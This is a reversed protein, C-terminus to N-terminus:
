RLERGLVVYALRKHGAKMYHRKWWDVLASAAEPYQTKLQTFEKEADRAAQTMEAKVTEADPTSSESRYSM